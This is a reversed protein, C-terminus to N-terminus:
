DVVVTYTGEGPFEIGYQALFAGTFLFRYFVIHTGKPLPELVVAVVTYADVGTPLGPTVAGVAYQSALSTTQGDVTVEMFEAGLQDPDFYYSSVARADTVDPFDWLVADNADSFVLPMYLMTGTRVHFTATNANAPTYLIQFPFGSPLTEPTRPGVNFYATAAAAAALSYGHAHATPPLVNGGGANACPAMLLWTFALSVLRTRTTVSM